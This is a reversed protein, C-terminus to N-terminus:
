LPFPQISFYGASLPHNPDDCLAIGEIPSIIPSDCVISYVFPSFFSESMAHTQGFAPRSHDGDARWQARMISPHWSCIPRMVGM